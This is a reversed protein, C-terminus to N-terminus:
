SIALSAVALLEPNAEMRQRVKMLDPSEAHRITVLRKFEQAALCVIRVFCVGVDDEEIEM